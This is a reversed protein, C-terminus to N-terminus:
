SGKDKAQDNRFVDVHQACHDFVKLDIKSSIIYIQM